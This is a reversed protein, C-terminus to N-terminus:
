TAKIWRFLSNSALLAYHTLWIDCEKPTVILRERSHFIEELLQVRDAKTWTSWEGFIPKVLEYDIPTSASPQWSTVSLKSSPANKEAIKGAITRFVTDIADALLVTAEVVTPIGIATVPVGLSEKSIEARENGVGSGPHIGTDTVQITRCLRESSRTALADIVIVLAPKIKNVLAEVFEKTEFGSQGTVGPAYMIFQENREEEFQKQMADIAFPGIADPTITKNGLGIVLVRDQKDIKLPEHLSKLHKSLVKELQQLGDTDDVTLSPISLTIYTGVKKDIQKSGEENVTVRTVKVRQEDWEELIVGATEELTRKNKQTQHAVVQESEDILDTRSWNIETM